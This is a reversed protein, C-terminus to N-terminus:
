EQLTFIKHGIHRAELVAAELSNSFIRKLQYKESKHPIKLLV